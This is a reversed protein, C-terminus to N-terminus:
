GAAAHKKLAAMLEIKNQVGLHSYASSLYTRVTAPTLGVLSAIEKSTHGQVYLAAVSLERPPLAREHRASDLSLAFLEGCPHQVLQVSKTALITRREGLDSALTGPLVTGSWGPYTAELLSGVREGLYHVVGKADVLAYADWPQEPGRLAAVLGLWHRVLHKAFWELMVREQADFAVSGEQRYVCMFFYLGSQPLEVTIAAGHFLGHRRGFADVEPHVPTCSHEAEFHVVTGLQAISAQGFNDVPAIRNWEEAFSPALAISGHTWNRPPLGDAGPSLEGWWASHFPVVQRFANVADGLFNHASARRQALEVLALLCEGLDALRSRDM